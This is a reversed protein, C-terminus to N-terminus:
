SVPYSIHMWMSTIAIPLAIIVSQPLPKEGLMYEVVGTLIIGALISFAKRVAGAHKTVMGVCLGGSAAYFLKCYTASTGLASTGTALIPIMNVLSLSGAVAIDQGQILFTILLTVISFLSLELSFVLSLRNSHQQNHSLRWSEYVIIGSSWAPVTLEGPWLPDGCQIWM